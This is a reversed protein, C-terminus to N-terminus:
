KVVFVPCHAYTVVENAVSGLLMRKFGSIGRSGIIIININEKEAYEVIENAVSTRGVIIDTKVRVNKETANQKVKDLNQKGKEMALMVAEKLRGPRPSLATELHSYRPDIVHIAILEAEFRKALDIAQISAELSPKSGDVAVLIKRILM